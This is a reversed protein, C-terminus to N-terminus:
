AEVMTVPQEQSEQARLTAAVARLGAIVTPADNADNWAPINYSGILAALGNHIARRPPSDEIYIPRHGSAVNIAGIACVQGLHNSTLGKCQGREQMVDAARELIESPRM